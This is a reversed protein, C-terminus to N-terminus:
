GKTTQQEIAIRGETHFRLSRGGMPTFRYLNLAVIRMSHRNCFRLGAKVRPAELAQSLDSVTVARAGM